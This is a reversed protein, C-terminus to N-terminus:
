EMGTQHDTRIIYRTLENAAQPLMKGFEIQLSLQKVTM